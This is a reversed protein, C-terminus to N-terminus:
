PFGTPAKKFDPNTMKPLTVRHRRTLLEAFHLQIRAPIRAYGVVVPVDPGCDRLTLLGPATNPLHTTLSVTSNRDAPGSM